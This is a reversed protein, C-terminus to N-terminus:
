RSGGEKTWALYRAQHASRGNEISVVMSWERQRPTLGDDPKWTRSMSRAGRWELRAERVHSSRAQEAAHFIELAARQDEAEIVAVRKPAPLTLAEGVYRANRDRNRHAQAGAERYIGFLRM